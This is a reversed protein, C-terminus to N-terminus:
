YSPLAIFLFYDRSRLEVKLGYSYGPTLDKRVTDRVNRGGVDAAAVIRYTAAVPPLDIAFTGDDASAISAVQVGTDDRVVTLLAGRVPKGTDEVVVGYLRLAGAAATTGTVEVALVRGPPTLIVAIVGFVILVSSVTLAVDLVVARVRDRRGTDARGGRM